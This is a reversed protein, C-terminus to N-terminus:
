RYDFTYEFFTMVDGIGNLDLNPNDAPTIRITWQDLLAENRLANLPQGAADSVLGNADTKVVIESAHNTSTLRLTLNAITTPKGSIKLTLATRKFNLQNRPFMGADFSLEADGKNKLYFLEDPFSLRMSFVRSAAGKKPLATKVTQELASSFFGDYYLVLHVDLIENYDFDNADLPLDIQWLTEIGNNEFLRLDNPNFRFALADQRLDYQSLAMVDSPYLRSVISGNERRFKSVGINRLSGAISTAGTIGVFILEVNRLKALYLGPHERDFDALETIFFCRGKTKLRQFSMAYSDALSITKKVPIKKTKTTTVHDLTFYDIDAQLLDAGLLNNASTRSYDYRIVHLGRETEANYAREMLFAIETAMDLYRQKIRKAQQALEYWLRAGFERMDLFDRNEEAFKQQLQAIKVRQEAVDKRAQAQVVQAQAIAKYANASDIARQLKAAELDHSIRTRQYALDQIVHPRGKSKANYYNGNWTLKVEDDHDVAAANAWAEAEALELLEWRVNNFDTQSEVANQRQVEAYNLGAQAVNIGAQAEAVGRQELIVTQQAVEAQQDLQERRFEENEAQSKFQIYRQEIQAAQQAFYRATNQLYEFSFPPTYNPAFGFFNLGAAIQKLKTHAELVLTLIAPNDNFTVPNAAALFNTVRTKLGAFKADKYLPSNASLTKNTLVLNEYAAKATAFAAPNDKAARYAMDGMDLYTQALRMWLKPIEANRNIFPYPLVKLYQEEAQKLSGLGAFCDAIAMPIIFFYMHPLYAVWEIHTAIYGTIFHLDSSNSLVQMFNKFNAVANADLKVTAVESAGQITFAKEPVSPKVYILAMLTPADPTSQIAAAALPRAATVPQLASGGMLNLGRKLVPSNLIPKITRTLAGKLNPVVPNLNNSGRLANAQKTFEAAQDKNGARNFVGSATELAQVQADVQKAEAFIKASLQSMEMAQSKNGLKENLIALDHTLSARTVLDTDPTQRLATTYHKLAANWDQDEAADLAAQVRAAVSDHFSTVQLGSDVIPKLEAAAGPPLVSQDSMITAPFTYKVLPTKKLIDTAKAAFVDVLALDRPFDFRSFRNPDIPMKPHVTKLILGMLEKFKDLALIYEEHQLHIQGENFLGQVRQEFETEPSEAQYDVNVPPKWVGIYSYRNELMYQPEM